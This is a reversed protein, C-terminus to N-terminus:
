PLPFMVLFSVQTKSKSVKEGSAACFNDLVGNIVLAQDCSAKALLLLDDALFLRTISIGNRTLKIPQWKREAGSELYRPKTKRYM